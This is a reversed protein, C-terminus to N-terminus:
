AARSWAITRLAVALGSLYYFYFYYAVPYFLAALAFAMLGIRVGTALAALRPERRRANREVCSATRISTVLLAIFMLMGPVGLDVGYELYIDHVSKWTAGRLANLALVDQGLGAGTIPHERLYQMAELADRWRDQASGTPDANVSSMTQLRAVYTAPVLPIALLGSFGAVAIIAYARSRLLWLLSLLAILALALFGGRSFTVIIAVVNLSLILGLAVRSFVGRATLVLAITLPLFIDLTLALDNPNGAIGARYGMIRGQADPMYAGALYNEIGSLSLPVSLLALTWALIHLRDVTNVARGLLWFVVLSKLFVSTLTDV